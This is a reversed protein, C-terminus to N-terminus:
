RYYDNEVDKEETEKSREVKILPTNLLFVIPIRRGGSYSSIARVAKIAM